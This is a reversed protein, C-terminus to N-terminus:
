IFGLGTCTNFMICKKGTECHTYCLLYTQFYLYLYRDFKFM